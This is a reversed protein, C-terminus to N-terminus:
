ILLSFILVQNLLYYMIYNIFFNILNIIKQSKGTENIKTIVKAKFINIKSKLYSMIM